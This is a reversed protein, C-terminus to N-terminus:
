EALKRRRAIDKRVEVLKKPGLGPAQLEDDLGDVLYDLERVLIRLQLLISLGPGQLLRRLLIDRKGGKKPLATFLSRFGEYCTAEESLQSQQFISRRTMYNRCAAIIRGAAEEPSLTKQVANIEVEEEEVAADPLAEQSEEAPYVSLPDEHGSEDITPSPPSIELPLEVETETEASGASFGDLKTCLDTLDSFLITQHVLLRAAPCMIEIGSSLMVLDEHQLDQSLM